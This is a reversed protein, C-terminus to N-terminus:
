HNEKKKIKEAEPSRITAKAATSPMKKEPEKAEMKQSFFLPSIGPRAWELSSILLSSTLTLVGCEKSSNKSENDGQNQRQSM